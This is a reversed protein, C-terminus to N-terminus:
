RAHGQQTESFHGHLAEGIRAIAFLIGDVVDGKAFYPQSDRVVDHWFTEGVSQHLARDGIVAFRRAKPAVLILAGNGRDHHHLGARVFERRAREMADVRRDPIVRVAIRGSTGEEAATLARSIRAREHRTM